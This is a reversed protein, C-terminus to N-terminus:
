TMGSLRGKLLFIKSITHNQRGQVEDFFRKKGRSDSVEWRGRAPIEGGENGGAAALAEAPASDDSNCKPERLSVGCCGNGLEINEEGIHRCINQVYEKSRNAPTM